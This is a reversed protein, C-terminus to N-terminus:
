YANTTAPACTPINLLIQEASTVFSSSTITQQALPLSPLTSIRFPVWFVGYIKIKGLVQGTSAKWKLLSGGTDVSALIDDQLLVMGNVCFNHPFISHPKATSPPDSLDRSSGIQARFVRIKGDLCAAVVFDYVPINVLFLVGIAVLCSRELILFSPSLRQSSQTPCEEAHRALLPASQTFPTANGCTTKPTHYLSHM